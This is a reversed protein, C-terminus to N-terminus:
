GDRVEIAVLSEDESVYRVVVPEGSVLHARIHSLPGDHFRLGPAPVFELVEGGPTRVAFSEIRELDGRVDVVIGRVTDGAACSAAAMVLVLLGLAPRGTM